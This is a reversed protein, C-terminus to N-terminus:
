SAQRRQGRPRRSPRRPPLRRANPSLSSWRPLRPQRQSPRRLTRCTRGGGNTRRGLRSSAVTAPSDCQRAMQALDDIADGARCLLNGRRGARSFPRKGQEHLGWTCGCSCGRIPKEIPPAPAQPLTRRRERQPGVKVRRTGNRCAPHQPYQSHLVRISADHGAEVVCPPEGSERCCAALAEPICRDDAFHAGIPAFGPEAPASAEGAAAIMPPRQPSISNSDTTTGIERPM